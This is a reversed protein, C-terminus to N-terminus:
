GCCRRARVYLPSQAILTTAQDERNLNVTTHTQPVSRSCLLTLSVCQRNLGKEWISQLGLLGAKGDAIM